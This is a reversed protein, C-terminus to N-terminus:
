QKVLRLTHQSEGNLLRIMYMGPALNAVDLPHLNSGETGTFTETQVLTGSLTFVMVDVVAHQNLEVELQVMDVAPNPWLSASAVTTMEDVGTVAFPNVVNISFGSTVMGPPNIMENTLEACFTIQCFGESGPDDFYATLCLLYPGDGSYVHSPFLESSTSGDGFDWLVEVANFINDSPTIWIVNAGTTDPSVTFSIGCEFEYECSGDDSTALPNYNIADPDTCGFVEPECGTANVGFQSFGFIGDELTGSDLLQNGLYIEFSGGNWGDGWTDFMEFTYCGDQLCLPIIYNTFNQYGDGEAVIVGDNWLVWSLENAWSATQILLSVENFQCSDAYQCSGDDMTAAPNYNIASPDTCGYIENNGCGDVVVVDCWQIDCNETTYSVCVTYIGNETYQHVGTWNNGQVFSGDGFDWALMGSLDDGTYFAEAFLVCGSTSDGNLFVSYFLEGCEEPWDCESNIAFDITGFSGSSLGGSALYGNQGAISVTIQGGNWGDGFSDLMELTYCGDQLCLIELYDGFDQYGDGSAVLTGENYLNWSIESGWMQTGLEILVTNTACSDQYICSGDNITALPNYNIAAPDTCGAIDDCGTDVDYTLFCTGSDGFFGDIMLIYTTNEELEGCEFHFASFLGQGANGDCYIMEGGCTEFLGFQTDTFTNTGDPSAEIHISAPENPTTFTFWISTQEGEGSGFAWCEGWVNENNVAGVNSILQIGEILPTADACLDNTVPDICSGDDVTAAPNYNPASPDTCGFVPPVSDCGETNLGFYVYSYAGSNLTTNVLTNGNSMIEISGGNWGDGFGDYLELLYCGNEACALSTYSNNSQYGNGAAIMSGDQTLTWSIEAGFIGSNLIIVLENTFCSDGYLCTGNDVTALPNYNSATPDTCGFVPTNGEDCGPDPLGGFDEYQSQCLGDWATQCCFSDQAITAFYADSSVDICYADLDVDVCDDNNYICSGDDNGAQPNYNLALPDTCGWIANSGCYDLDLPVDILTNLSDNFFNYESSTGTCNSHLAQLFYWPGAPLEVWTAPIQGTADATVMATVPPNSYIVVTVDVDFGPANAMQGFLYIGNQAAASLGFVFSFFLLLYSKM